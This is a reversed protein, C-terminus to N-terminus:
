KQQAARGNMRDIRAPGFGGESSREGIEGNMSRSRMFKGSHELGDRSAPGPQSGDHEAKIAPAPAAGLRGLCIM